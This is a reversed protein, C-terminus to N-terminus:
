PQPLSQRLTWANRACLASGLTRRRVRVRTVARPMGAWVQLHRQCTALVAEPVGFEERFQCHCPNPPPPADARFALVAAWAANGVQARMKELRVVHGGHLRSLEDLQKKLAEIRMRAGRQLLLLTMQRQHAYRTIRSARVTIRREFLPKGVYHNFGLM